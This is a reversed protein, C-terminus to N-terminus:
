NTLIYDSKTSFPELSKPSVKCSREACYSYSVCVATKGPFIKIMWFDRFRTKASKAIESPNKHFDSSGIHLTLSQYSLEPPLTCSRFVAPGSFRRILWYDPGFIAMFALIVRYQMKSHPKISFRQLSNQSIRQFTVVSDTSCCQPFWLDLFFRTKLFIPDSFLWIGWFLM